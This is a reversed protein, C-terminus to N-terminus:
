KQLQGAYIELDGWIRQVAYCFEAGGYLYPPSTYLLCTYLFAVSAEGNLLANQTNDDQILRVNPALELLKEGTKKIVDVYIHILSLVQVVTMVWTVLHWQSYTLLQEGHILSITIEEIFM